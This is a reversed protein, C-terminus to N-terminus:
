YRSIKTKVIPLVKIHKANGLPFSKANAVKIAFNESGYVKQFGSPM